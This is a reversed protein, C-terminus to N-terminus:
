ISALCTGHGGKIVSTSWIKLLACHNASTFSQRFNKLCIELIGHGDVYIGYLVFSQRDFVKASSVEDVLTKEV